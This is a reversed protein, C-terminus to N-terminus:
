GEEETRKRQALGARDQAAAQLMERLEDANYLVGEFWLSGPDTEANLLSELGRLMMPATM